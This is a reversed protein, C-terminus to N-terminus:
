GAVDRLEEKVKEWPTWETEEQLVNRADRIDDLDELRQRIADADFALLADLFAHHEAPPLLRVAQALQASSMGANHREAAIM